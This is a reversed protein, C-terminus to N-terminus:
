YYIEDFELEEVEEDEDDEDEDEEDGTESDGKDTESTGYKTIKPPPSKNTKKGHTKSRNKYCKLLLERKSDKTTQRKRKYQPSKTSMMENAKTNMPKKVYLGTFGEFDEMTEEDCSYFRDRTNIESDSM